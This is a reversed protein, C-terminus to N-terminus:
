KCDACDCDAGSLGKATDSLYFGIISGVVPFVVYVTLSLGVEGLVALFDAGSTPLMQYMLAIAPNNFTFINNAIMGSEPVTFFSSQIAFVIMMAVFAGAGVMAAFTFASRKYSQARAFFFGLVVASIL